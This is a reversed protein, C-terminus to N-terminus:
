FTYRGGIRLVEDQGNVGNVGDVLKVSLSLNENFSYSGGLSWIFNSLDDNGVVNDLDGGVLSFTGFLGLKDSLMTNLGVKAEIATPDGDGAPLAASRDGFWLGGELIMTLKENLSQSYGGNNNIYDYDPGDTDYSGIMGGAYWNENFGWSGAIEIGNKEDNGGRQNNEGGTIYAFELYTPPAAFATGTFVVGALLLAFKNM